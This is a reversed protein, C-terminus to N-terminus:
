AGTATKACNLSRAEHSQASLNNLTLSATIGVPTGSLVDGRPQPGGARTMPLASWIPRSAFAIGPYPFVAPRSLFPFSSVHSQVPIDLAFPDDRPHRRVRFDLHQLDERFIM